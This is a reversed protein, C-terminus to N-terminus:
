HKHFLLQHLGWTILGIALAIMYRQGRHAKTEPHDHQLIYRHGIFEGIMAGGIAFAFELPPNHRLLPLGVSAAVATLLCCPMHEILLALSRSKIVAWRRSFTM